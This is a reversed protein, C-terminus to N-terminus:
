LVAAAPGSNDEPQVVPAVYVHPKHRLVPKVMVGM